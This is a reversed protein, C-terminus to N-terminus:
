QKVGNNQLWTLLEGTPTELFTIVLYDTNIEKGIYSNDAYYYKGAVIYTGDEKYYYLRKSYAHQGNYIDPMEYIRIKTFATTNSIFPIETTIPNTITVPTLFNDLTLVWTEGSAKPSLYKGNVSLMKNDYSYVEM